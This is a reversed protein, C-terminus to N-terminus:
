IKMGKFFMLTFVKVIHNIYDNRRSGVDCRTDGGLHTCTLSPSSEKMIWCSLPLPLHSRPWCCSSFTAITSFINKCPKAL